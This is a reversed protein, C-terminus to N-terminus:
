FKCIGVVKNRYVKAFPAYTGRTLNAKVAAVTPVSALICIKGAALCQIVHATARSYKQYFALRAQRTRVAKKAIMSLRNM